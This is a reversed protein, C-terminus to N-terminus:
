TQLYVREFLCRFRRQNASRDPASMNRLGSRFRGEIIRIIRRILQNKGEASICSNDTHRDKLLCSIRFALFNHKFLIWIETSNDANWGPSLNPVGFHRRVADDETQGSLISVHVEILNINDSKRARHILFAM